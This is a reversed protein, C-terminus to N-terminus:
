AGYCTCISCRQGEFTFKVTTDEYGTTTHLNGWDIDQAALAQLTAPIAAQAAEVSCDEYGMFAGGNAENDVIIANSPYLQQLTTYLAQAVTNRKAAAAANYALIYAAAAAKLAATHTAINQM